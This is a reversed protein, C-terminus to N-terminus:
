AGARLVNFTVTRPVTSGSKQITLRAQGSATASATPQLRLQITESATGGAPIESPLVHIIRKGAADVPPDIIALTWGTMTGVKDFTVEYDGANKFNASLNIQTVIGPQCTVNLGVVAGIPTSGSVTATISTDVNPPQGVVFALLGSTAPGIGTGTGTVTLELASGNTGALVPIQVYFVKEEDPNIPLQPTSLIAKNGDLFKLSPQLSAPNVTAGLTVTATQSLRSRLRMKFLNDQGATITPPDVDDWIVDVVGVNPMEKKRVLMQWTAATSQNRVTLAVPSGALALGPLDPIKCILLSDSSQPAIFNPPVGNFDIRTAGISLQFNRGSIRIEDGETPLTPFVDDIAVATGSPLGGEVVKLRTDINHMKLALLNFDDARILGGPEMHPIDDTM